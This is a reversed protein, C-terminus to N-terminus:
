ARGTRLAKAWDPRHLTEAQRAAQQWDYHLSIFEVTRVLADETTVLCYKAHPSYSQMKHPFPAEDEYAPLGVSGPNLLGRGSALWVQRPVHTHACLITSELVSQLLQELEEETKLTVGTATIQELLPADDAFPTGHCLFFGGAGVATQPLGALWAYAAEPLSELVFHMTPNSLPITLTPPLAMRAEVLYRDMNGAIHQVAHAQLLAYTGAPDLPGYLTDGLNVIQNVQRKAIDELVAELAWRNAHIDALVATIM